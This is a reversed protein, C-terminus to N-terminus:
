EGVNIRITATTGAPDDGGSGGALLATAIVGGVVVVGVPIWFWPSVFISDGQIAPVTVRVPADADGQSALPLGAKDKVLLYYEVLPPKVVSAPIQGRFAGMSYILNKSTFQGGDPKKASGARYHLEVAHVVGDPDEIKGEVKITSGPEVQAPPRHVVRVTPATQSEGVEPLGPKGEGEWEERVEDFFDRFRPSETEPITFGEDLVFVGRAAADAEEFRQMTIYNYALLRYIEIKEDTTADSRLLAATLTQISEEYKLEEFRELGKKILSKVPTRKKSQAHADGAWTCTAVVAFSGAAATLIAAASIARLRSLPRAM